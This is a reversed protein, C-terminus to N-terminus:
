MKQFKLHVTEKSNSFKKFEMENDVGLIDIRIGKSKMYVLYDSDMKALQVSDVKGTGDLMWSQFTDSGELRLSAFIKVSPKIAKVRLIAGIIDNTITYAEDTVVGEAPHGDRAYVPVRLVDMGDGIFIQSILNNSLAVAKGPQKIDYGWDTFLQKQIHPYVIIEGGTQAMLPVFLIHLLCFVTVYKSM